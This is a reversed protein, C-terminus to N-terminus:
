LRLKLMAKVAGGRIQLQGFMGERRYEVFLGRLVTIGRPKVRVVRTRAYRIPFYYCLGVAWVGGSIGGILMGLTLMARLAYLQM